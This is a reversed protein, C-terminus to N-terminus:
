AGRVGGADSAAGAARIRTGLLHSQGDSRPTPRAASRGDHLGLLEISAPLGAFPSRGVFVYQLRLYGQAGHGCRGTKSAIVVIPVAQYSGTHCDSFVCLDVVATGSATAVPKGWGSWTLDRATIDATGCIVNVVTPKVQPSVGCNAMTVRPAGTGAGAPHSCAPLLLLPVLLAAMVVASTARALV